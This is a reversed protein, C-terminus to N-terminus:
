EKSLSVALNTLLTNFVPNVAIAVNAPYVNPGPAAVVMAEIQVNAPSYILRFGYQVVTFIM